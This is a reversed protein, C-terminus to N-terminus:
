SGAVDCWLVIDGTVQVHMEVITVFLNSSEAATVTTAHFIVAVAGRCEKRLPATSRLLIFSKM